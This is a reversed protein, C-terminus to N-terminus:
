LCLADGTEECKDRKVTCKTHPNSCKPSLKNALEKSFDGMVQSRYMTGDTVDWFSQCPWKKLDNTQDLENKLVKALIKMDRGDRQFVNADKLADDMESTVLSYVQSDEISRYARSLQEDHLKKVQKAEHAREPDEVISKIIDQMDQVLTESILNVNFMTTHAAVHNLRCHWRIIQRLSQKMSEIDLLKEDDGKNYKNLDVWSGLVDLLLPGNMVRIIKTFGHNKGYGYPPVYTQPVLQLDSNMTKVDFDYFILLANKLTSVFTETAISPPSIIAIRQIDHGTNGNVTVKHHGCSGKGADTCNRLTNIFRDEGKLKLRGNSTVEAVSIVQDPDISPILNDFHENSEDNNKTAKSSVFYSIGFIFLLILSLRLFLRLRPKSRKDRLKNFSPTVMKM